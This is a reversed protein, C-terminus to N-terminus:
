RGTPPMPPRAVLRHLERYTIKKDDSPNDGEWVIATQDGRKALHRDLCNASVNLTGDYYWKIHLDDKAYSVDKVKTYPKIWDIRKGQEGWFAEPDAVSKEYMALYGDNDILAARRTAEPVPFLENDSM